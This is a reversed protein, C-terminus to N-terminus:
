LLLIGKSHIMLNPCSMRIIMYRGSSGSRRILHDRDSKMMGMRDKLFQDASRRNANPFLVVYEAENLMTRTKNYNALIHSTSLVTINKHRGAELIADRYDRLFIARDGTFADIDDFFTITNQMDTDVPLNVLDDDSFIPIQILRPTVKKRMEVTNITGGRVDRIVPVEVMKEITQDKLEKLSPDDRVKSFLVVPRKRKDNMLMQKALFSKGSGSPGVLLISRDFPKDGILPIVNKVPDSQSFNIEGKLKKHAISELVDYARKLRESLKGPTQAKVASQLVRKDITGLKLDKAVHDLDIEDILGLPDDVDIDPLEELPTIHITHIVKGKSDLALAIPDGRNFSLM